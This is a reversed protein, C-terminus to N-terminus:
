WKVLTIGAVLRGPPVHCWTCQTEFVDWRQRAIIKVYVIRNRYKKASTSGLFYSILRHKTKGGQLPEATGQLVPFGYIADKWYFVTRQKPLSYVFCMWIIVQDCNFQGENGFHDVTHM